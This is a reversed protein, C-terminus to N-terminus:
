QTQEKVLAADKRLQNATRDPTLSAPSLDRRGKALFAIGVIAFIVGILLAAWADGIYNGLAVVMAQSLVFLAVLLCMAGAAIAGGGVEVQRVKDSIESRILQVETKMLESVEGVIDAILSPLSRADRPSDTM